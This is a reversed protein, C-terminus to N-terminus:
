PGTRRLVALAREDTHITRYFQKLAQADALPVSLSKIEFSRQYILTHGVLVSKSHYAGFAYDADVPAPLDDVAYGDPLEIEFHDIDHELNLEVDYRRPERTELLGSSKSGLVRPRVILLDGSIKAYHEVELSYNWELPREITRLGGITAKTLLFSPFSDALESEVPKIRDTDLTTTDLAGRVATAPDGRRVERVDGRLVGSGDLQLHATREIANADPPLVPLVVLRSGASPSVLLGHNGQLYGGILGFPIYPITPDFFLLRGLKPDDLVARLAPDRADDPLRVAIIVHNFLLAPTEDSIAGRQTNILVYYSEIGLQALMSSFLTVKDKCDGYRNEYIATATHPQFGGVGLEIAVYRIDSQVFSALTQMRALPSMQSATLERVKQKIPESPNRREAALAQYWQGIDNWGGFDESPNNPPQLAIALEGALAQLPPMDKETRMGKVDKLVWEVHVPTTRSPSQEEHNIWTAKYRWGSPLELSYHTERVPDLDQFRWVDTLMYPYLKQQFEYAVLNGPIGAPIRLVKAQAYSMLDMSRTGGPFGQVMDRDGVSLPKGVAPVSWGYVHDIQRQTDDYLALTARKEGEARLIRYVRRVTRQIRGDPQVVLNEEAYLVVAAAEADHEPDAASLQSMVWAPPGGAALTCGSSAALCLALLKFVSRLHTRRATNM